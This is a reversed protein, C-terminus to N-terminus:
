SQLTNRSLTSDAAKESKELPKDRIQPMPGASGIECRVAVPEYLSKM